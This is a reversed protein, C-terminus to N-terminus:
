GDSAQVGPCFFYALSDHNIHSKLVVHLIVTNLVFQSGRFSKPYMTVEMTAGVIMSGMTYVDNPFENNQLFCAIVFFNNCM